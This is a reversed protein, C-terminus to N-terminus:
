VEINDVHIIDKIDIFMKLKLLFFNFVTTNIGNFFNNFKQGDNSEMKVTLWCQSILLSFQISYKPEYYRCLWTEDFISIFELFFGGFYKIFLKM